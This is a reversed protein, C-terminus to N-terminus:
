EVINNSSAWKKVSLKSLTLKSSESNFRDDSLIPELMFLCWPCIVQLYPCSAMSCPAHCSAHVHLVLMFFPCTFHVHMISLCCPFAAHAHVQVLLMSVNEHLISLCFLYAAYVHLKFCLMSMCCTGTCAAYFVAHVHLMSM